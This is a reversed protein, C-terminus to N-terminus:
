GSPREIHVAFMHNQQGKRRQAAKSRAQERGAQRAAIYDLAAGLEKNEVIATRNVSRLKDFTRYPLSVGEYQIDLRGDPYDCVTM